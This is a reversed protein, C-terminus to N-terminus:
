AMYKYVNTINLQVGRVYWSEYARLPGGKRFVTVGTKSLNIEMCTNFCFQYVVNIQQQLRAATEACNAINNNQCNCCLHCIIIFWPMYFTIDKVNYTFWTQCKYYACKTKADNQYNRLIIIQRRYKEQIFIYSFQFINQASGSISGSGEVKCLAQAQICCIIIAAMRVTGVHLM